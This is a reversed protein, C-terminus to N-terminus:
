NATLGKIKELVAHENQKKHITDLEKEYLRKYTENSQILDDHNGMGVLRGKDIVIIIDSDIVTMLRHAIIILTKIKAIEDLAQKILFQSENDLASTAEDFLIIPSNRLLVRAISLRQKQGTSFNVGNEGILTDYKQSLAMIEKYIFANSCASNIEQVSAHPNALLLNDKISANFLFPEQRVIAINKRLSVESFDRVNMEDISISGQLPDYFRLILNFITTKGSGSPGVISVKKRPPITFSINKLVESNNSYAFNVNTFKIAGIAREVHQTGFTEFTYNFSDMLEFIRGISILAQQISSNIQTINLIAGTFQVNYSMFAIFHEISLKGISTLYYGFVIVLIETAYNLLGSFSNAYGSVLGIKIRKNMLQKGLSLFLNIRENKIGLSKVERIGSMTEQVTSFYSDGTKAIEATHSRLIKGSIVFILFSVPFFAVAVLSLSVSLKFIVIGIILVRFIDVVITVFQGTIITAITQADGNLRSIFEGVRMEDFARVPLIMIKSYMDRKIDYIIKENLLSYLYGQLLGIGQQLIFLIGMLCSIKLLRPFDKSFVSTVIKAFLLPQLLGFVIGSLVCIFGSIFILKYPLVYKSARKILIGDNKSFLSIKIKM